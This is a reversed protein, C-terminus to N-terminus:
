VFTSMSSWTAARCVEEISANKSLAANAAASQVSHATIGKPVAVNAAKYAEMICSKIAFSFASKSM